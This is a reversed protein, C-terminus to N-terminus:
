ENREDEWKVTGEDSIDNCAECILVGWASAYLYNTEEGCEPCQIKNKNM